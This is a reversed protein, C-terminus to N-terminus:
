KGNLRGQIYGVAKICESCSEHLKTWRAEVAKSEESFKEFLTTICNDVHKTYGVGLFGIVACLLGIVTIGLSILQPMYDVM